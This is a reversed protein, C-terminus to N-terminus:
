TFSSFKTSVPFAPRAMSRCMSPLAFVNQCVSLVHVDAPNYDTQRDTQRDTQVSSVKIAMLDQMFCRFMDQLYEKIWDTESTDPRHFREFRSTTM